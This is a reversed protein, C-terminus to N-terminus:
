PAVISNPIPPEEAKTTGNLTLDLGAIIDLEPSQGNLPAYFVLNDRQIKLPNIGNALSKIEDASLPIDWIAYHGLSGDFPEESGSGGSGAGITLPATTDPMNGTQAISGDQVGNLYVRIDSGDYTGAIHLWAGTPTTTSGTAIKSSGTNIACIPKDASNISLLYQFRGGADAWKSFLKQEGNLADVKMWGSLTVQDGTLDISAVDGVEIHDENAAIFNRAM